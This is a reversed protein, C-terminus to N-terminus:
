RGAGSDAQFKAHLSEWDMILRGGSAGHQKAWNILLDLCAHDIYELHSLDVHLEAGAPIQELRAALVPLRLFTAAGHLSMAVQPTQQDGSERSTTVVELQSFRLLLLLASLVIGTVVGVLLDEVIIVVLTILFILAEPRNSKWLHLFGRVDILRFGTFVLIGALAATPILRLLPTLAWTFLLLWVGHLIASLRTRGGAQVNAASRVIVGTMPLAMLLGCFMNGIGQAALERDYRTRPGSHMQDVATACLLTEASAIIALVMGSMALERLNLNELASLSPLRISSLLNDPVDVYLVPISLAQAVGTVAVIALLPAPILKWPGRALSQWLVIIVISMIGVKGAWAHDRLQATLQSTASLAAAQSRQIEAADLTASAAPTLAAVAATQADQTAALQSRLAQAAATDSQTVSSAAAATVIQQLEDRLATQQTALEAPLSLPTDADSSAAHRRLSVELQRGFAKQQDSLSSAQRLLQIRAERTPRDDWHGPNLGSLVSQPLAAINRVANERPRDDVLVHLQSCLILVGIGSLMGHIVAPSVARFWQGLRCIGAILQILGGLLVAMGLGPLGQQRIIEGCIVTLGAAPGSVQLPSGALPGVLLGGAIGTILGAAIPAGSALAIGMCLPLAVLFVVLSALVDQRWYALLQSTSSKTRPADNSTM